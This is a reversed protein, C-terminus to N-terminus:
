IGMWSSHAAACNDPHEVHCGGLVPVVVTLM